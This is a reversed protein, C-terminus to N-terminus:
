RVVATSGEVPTWPESAVGPVTRALFEEMRGAFDLNNAERAFGHGEELYLVYEVPTGAARLAEVLQDSEAQVVRPDNAGQIVLLPTRIATVSNLPSRAELLERDDTLSGIRADFLADMTRWYAPVSERFTVLNSPGFLDVAACYLDPTFAVGALVAYGGYSGGVIAIREPDAIGGDVAWAVADTLDDQMAGGWERDAANVFDRGFGTSGRFNVQLVAFGRDALLQVMPDYGYRDRWWPGGHVYLALPLQGDGEHGPPLTLYSPLVLGDRATILVPQQEALEWASLGPIADFLFTMSRGSRDYLYYSVPNLCSYYGVIWRDGSRDEPAVGFDGPSFSALFDYDAQYAPDLIEVRRRLYDFTVAAPTVTEEDFFVSGTDCLSDAALVSDEGTQLDRLLLRSTGSGITSTYYLGLGDRTFRVPQVEETIDWTMYPVWAGEADRELLMQRGEGDITFAMRVRLDEDPIWGLVYGPNRELIRVEGTTLDAEYVDFLAPDELNMEILVRDPQDRDTASVYAKVGEHPTLDLVEGTEVDLRYVHTNEEGATDQMYLIHRGNEAWCYEWIGRSEDGTLLRAGSGDPDMVWLNLVGDAPAVFAISAGDPSLSPLMREPNGFLLERPILGDDVAAATSAMALALMTALM